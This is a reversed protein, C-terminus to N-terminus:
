SGEGSDGYLEKEKKFEEWDDGERKNGRPDVM